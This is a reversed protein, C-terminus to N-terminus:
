QHSVERSQIREKITPYIDAIFVIIIFVLSNVLTDSSVIKDNYIHIGEIILGIILLLSIVIVHRKQYNRVKSFPSATVELSQSLAINTCVKDDVDTDFKVDVADDTPSKLLRQLTGLLSEREYTTTPKRLWDYQIVYSTICLIVYDQKEPHPIVVLTHKEHSSNRTQLIIKDTFKGKQIFNHNYLFQRDTITKRVEEFKLNILFTQYDINEKSGNVGIMKKIIWGQLFGLFSLIGYIIMIVAITGGLFSDTLAPPNNVLINSYIITVLITATTVQVYLPSVIRKPTFSLSVATSYIIGIGVYSITLEPSTTIFPIQGTNSFLVDPHRTIELLSFVILLTNLGGGVFILVVLRILTDERKMVELISMM